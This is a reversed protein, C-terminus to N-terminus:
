PTTWDKTVTNTNFCGSLEGMHIEDSETHGCFGCTWDILKPKAEETETKARMLQTVNGKMMNLGSRSECIPCVKTAM